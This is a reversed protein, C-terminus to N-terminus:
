RQEETYKSWVDKPIEMTMMRYNCSPCVRRREVWYFEKQEDRWQRTDKTQMPEKCEPCKM